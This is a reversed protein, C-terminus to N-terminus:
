FVFWMNFSEVSLYRIHPASAWLLVLFIFIGAFYSMDFDDTCNERTNQRDGLCISFQALAIVCPAALWLWTGHRLRNDPIPLVIIKLFTIAFLIIWLLWGFSFYFRAIYINAPSNPHQDPLPTVIPAAFAAMALGIPYILWHPHVNDLTFPRGIWDAVAAVSILIQSV